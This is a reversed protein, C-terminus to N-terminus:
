LVLKQTSESLRIKLLTTGTVYEDTVMGQVHQLSSNSTCYTWLEFVM